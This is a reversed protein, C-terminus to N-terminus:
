ANVEAEKGLEGGSGSRLWAVLSTIGDRLSVCPEFNFRSEMDSRSAYFKIYEVPRGVHSLRINPKGLISAVSRVFSDISEPKGTCFDVTLNREHSRLVNMLGRVADDVFMADILNQGDGRIEFEDRSEFLLTKALRTTIKHPPEFPGYAGFFRLIVYSSIKGANKASIVHQEAAMKNIAYPFLPKTPSNPSVPGSNGDYVAGSSMFIFSETRVHQLVNTTALTNAVADETADKVVLTNAALHLVIDQEGVAGLHKRVLFSNGLDVQVPDVSSLNHTSVFRPFDRSRNYTAVTVWDPPLKLLLNRGLFGSAGTVLLRM